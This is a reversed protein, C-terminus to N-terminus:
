RPAAGSVRISQSVSGGDAGFVELRFQVEDGAPSYLHSGRSLDAKTLDISPKQVEGDRISLAGRRAAVIDPATSDWSILLDPPNREVRLGLASAAPRIVSAEERAPRSGLYAMVSIVLAATAIAITAARLLLGPWTRPAKALPAPKPDPAAPVVATAVVPPPTPSRPEPQPLSVHPFLETLDEPLDDHPDDRPIELTADAPKERDSARGLAVELSSFESQLRGDEWFFFGATCAKNGAVAKLLLFVSEAADFYADIVALDGPALSMGDRRHSRYYGLVSPAEPSACGALATKLLAAELHVTDESSLDYLSAGHYSCPVPVFGDIIAVTKGAETQVRGLLIGGVEKESRLVEAQLRDAMGAHLYIRIGRDTEEWHYYEALSRTM